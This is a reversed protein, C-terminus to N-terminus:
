LRAKGILGFIKSYFFEYLSEFCSKECFCSSTRPQFIKRFSEKDDNELWNNLSVKVYDRFGECILWKEDNEKLFSYIKLLYEQINIRLKLNAKAEFYESYFFLLFRVFIAIEEISEIKQENSESISDNPNQSYSIGHFCEFYKVVENEWHEKDRFVM